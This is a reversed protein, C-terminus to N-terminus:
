GHLRYTSLHLVQSVQVQQGKHQAEEQLWRELTSLVVGEAHGALCCLTSACFTKSAQQSAQKGRTCFLSVYLNFLIVNQALVCAHMGTYITSASHLALLRCMCCAPVQIYM